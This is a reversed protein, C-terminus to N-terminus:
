ISTLKDLWSALFYSLFLNNLICAKMEILFFNFETPVEGMSQNRLSFYFRPAMHLDVEERLHASPLAITKSSIISLESTQIRFWDSEECCDRPYASRNLYICMNASPLTYKFHRPETWLRCDNPSVSKNKTSCDM